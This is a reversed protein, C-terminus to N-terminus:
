GGAAARRATEALDGILAQLVAARASNLFFHDGPLIRFSFQRRTHCSWAVLEEYTVRIDHRGSYASIPCDLPEEQTHKYTEFIQVDARLTPLLLKMLEPQEAVERPIGKLHFLRTLFLSDPLKHLPAARPKLHPAAVASVFLREPGPWGRRRLERCLEFAVLGGFSHGFLVFPPRLWDGAESALTHVLEPLSTFPPEAWRSERGPLQVPCVEVEPALLGIWPRFVSAGGGAYPFCFLRRSSNNAEAHKGIWSRALVGM